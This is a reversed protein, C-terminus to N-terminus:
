EVTYRPSLQLTIEMGDSIAVGESISQASVYGVGDLHVMLGM